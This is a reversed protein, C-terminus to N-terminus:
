WVCCLVEGGTAAKRAGEGSLVGKSTSLIVMGSGGRITPVDDKGVYRRLGSKSLRKLGKIVPAGDPSYRMKIRLTRKTGESVVEYGGIFGAEALIRAIEVKVKSSPMGLDKLRAMSANRIRTLMDAIPDTMTM